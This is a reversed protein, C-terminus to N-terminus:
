ETHMVTHVAAVVGRPAIVQWGKQVQDQAPVTSAGVGYISLSEFPACVKISLSEFPACM